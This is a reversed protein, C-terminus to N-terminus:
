GTRVDRGRHIPLSGEDTGPRVRAPGDSRPLARGRM